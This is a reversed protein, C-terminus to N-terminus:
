SIEVLRNLKERECSHWPATTRGQSTSPPVQFVRCARRTPDVTSPQGIEVPSKIFKSPITEWIFCHHLSSPSSAHCDHNQIDHSALPSSWSFSWSLSLMKIIFHHFHHSNRSFITVHHHPDQHYRDRPSGENQIVLIDMAVTETTAYLSLTAGFGRPADRFNGLIRKIPQQHNM